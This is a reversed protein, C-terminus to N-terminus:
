KQGVERAVDQDWSAANLVELSADEHPVMGPYHEDFIAMMEAFPV